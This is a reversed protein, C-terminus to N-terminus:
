STAEVNSGESKEHHKLIFSQLELSIVGPPANQMCVLPTVGQNDKEELSAGKQLLLKVSDFDGLSVAHHLATAGEKKSKAHVDAGHEILMKLVPYNKCRAAAILPTQGSSQEECDLLNIEEKSAHNLLIEACPPSYACALHFPTAGQGDRIFINAGHDILLKVVDTAHCQIAYHLPTRKHGDLANVDLSEKSLLFQVASSLGKAASSHLPFEFDADKVDDSAYANPTFILRLHLRGKVADKKNTRPKLDYWEDVPAMHILSDLSIYLEGMFDDSGVRDHDYMQVQLVSVGEEIPLTYFGDRWVPNLTKRKWTSKASEKGANFIVYPDSKGSLDKSCLGTAEVPSVMIKGVFQAAAPAAASSADATSAKPSKPAKQSKPTKPTRPSKSAADSKKGVGASGTSALKGLRRIM